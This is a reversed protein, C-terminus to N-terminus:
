KAKGILHGIILDVKSEVGKMSTSIMDAVDKRTTRDKMDLRIKHISSVVWIIAPILLVTILKLGFNVIAWIEPTM